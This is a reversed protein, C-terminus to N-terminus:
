EVKSWFFLVSLMISSMIVVIGLTILESLGSRGRRGMVLIDAEWSKAFNCISRGPSGPTQTFETPVEAATAEETLSRLLYLCKQKFAEWQQHYSRIPEATALSNVDMSIIRPSVSSDEAEPSLVHLLMMKGNSAKALFLARDFVRRAFDSSDLAVLIKNVM